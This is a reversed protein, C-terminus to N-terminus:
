LPAIMEVNFPGVYFKCLVLFYRPAGSLPFFVHELMVDDSPQVAERRQKFANIIVGVVFPHGEAFLDALNSLATDSRSLTVGRKGFSNYM